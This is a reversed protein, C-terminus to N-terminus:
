LQDHMLSVSLGYGEIAFDLKKEKFHYMTIELCIIWVGWDIVVRVRFGLGQM